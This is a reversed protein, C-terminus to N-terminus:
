KRRKKKAKVKTFFGKPLYYLQLANYISYDPNEAAYWDSNRWVHSFGIGNKIEKNIKDLLFILDDATKCYFFRDMGTILDAFRIRYGDNDDVVGFCCYPWKIKSFLTGKRSNQERTMQSLNWTCCNRKNDDLHDIDMVRKDGNKDTYTDIFIERGFMRTVKVYDIFNLGTRKFDYIFRYFYRKFDLNGKDDYLRFEVQLRGEKVKGNKDRGNRCTYKTIAPNVLLLYLEPTYETYVYHGTAKHLVLIIEGNHVVARTKNVPVGFAGALEIEKKMKKIVSNKIKLERRNKGVVDGEFFNNWQKFEHRNMKRWKVNNFTRYTNRKREILDKHM